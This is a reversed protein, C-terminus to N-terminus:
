CQKSGKWVTRYNKPSELFKGSQGSVKWITRFSELCDENLIIEGKHQHNPKVKHEIKYNRAFVKQIRLFKRTLLASVGVILNKPSQTWEGVGDSMKSLLEVEM